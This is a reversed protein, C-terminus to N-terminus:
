VQQHDVPAPDVVVEVPAPAAPSSVAEVLDAKAQEITEMSNRNLMAETYNDLATKFDM